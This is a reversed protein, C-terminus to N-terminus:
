LGQMYQKTSIFLTCVMIQEKEHVVELLINVSNRCTSQHKFGTFCHYVCQKANAKGTTIEILRLMHRTKCMLISRTETERQSLEKSFLTYGRNVHFYILPIQYKCLNTNLFTEKALEM